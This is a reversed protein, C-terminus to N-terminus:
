NQRKLVAYKRSYGGMMKMPRQSVNRDSPSLIRPLKTHEENDTYSDLPNIM